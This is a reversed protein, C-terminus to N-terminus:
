TSALNAFSSAQNLYLKLAIREFVKENFFYDGYLNKLSVFAAPELRNRLEEIENEKDPGDYYSRHSVFAGWSDHPWSFGSVTYQSYLGRAGVFRGVVGPYWEIEGYAKPLRLDSPVKSHIEQAAAFTAQASGTYITFVKGDDTDGGSLYKHVMNHSKLFQSVRPCDKPEVNLHLKWGTNLNTPDLFNNVVQPGPAENKYAVLYTYDEHSLFTNEQLNQSTPCTTLLRFLNIWRRAEELERERSKKLDDHSVSNGKFFSDLDSGKDSPRSGFFDDFNGM